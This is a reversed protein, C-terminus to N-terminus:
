ALPDANAEELYKADIKEPKGDGEGRKAVYLNQYHETANKKGGQKKQMVVRMAQLVLCTKPLEVSFPRSNEKTWNDVDFGLTGLDKKLQGIQDGNKVYLGSSEDKKTFFYTKRIKGGAQPCETLLEITLEFITNNKKLEASAISFLYEGDKLESLDFDGSKFGGPKATPFDDDLDALTLDNATATASM